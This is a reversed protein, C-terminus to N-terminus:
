KMVSMIKEFIGRKQDTKLRTYRQYAESSWRGWGKVDDSTALSPHRMLASPVAARFSHCTISDREPDIVDSLLQKLLENLGQVTLFKRSEFTFVPLGSNLRGLHENLRILKKLAAVPCCGYSGFEFLDLFDGQPAASKPMRLHVLFSNDPRQKICNWMLTSDPDFGAEAPALLEGMRASTFFAMTCATWIVQKSFESWGSVSLRHGLHRLLPMTMVRRKNLHGAPESMLLHDGGRLLRTVIEDKIEYGLYGRMKHVHAISTLYTKVSTPKLKKVSLCFQVYSRIAEMSVPLKFKEGIYCEFDNFSKWGSDYKSWTTAALSAYLYKCM